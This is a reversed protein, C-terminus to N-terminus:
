PPFRYDTGGTGAAYTTDLYIGDLPRGGALPSLSRILPWSAMSDHFRFDGTHLYRRGDDLQFLWLASGPCHNAPLLMVTTAEGELRIEKGFPIPRLRGAPVRLKLVVLRATVNSCYVVGANFNPTLGTYHDSHFHTLVYCKSLRTSAFEFGDVIVNTCPVRKTSPCRDPSRKRVYRAQAQTLLAGSPKSKPM